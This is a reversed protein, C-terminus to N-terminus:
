WLRNYLRRLRSLIRVAPNRSCEILHIPLSAVPAEGVMSLYKSLGVPSMWSQRSIRLRASAFLYYEVQALLPDDLPADSMYLRELERFQRCHFVTFHKELTQWWRDIYYSDWDAMFYVPMDGGQDSVMRRIDAVFLGPFSRVAASILREAYNGFYRSMRVHLCVYNEGIESLVEQALSKVSESPKLGVEVDAIGRSKKYSHWPIVSRNMERGPTAKVVVRYGGYEDSVPVEGPLRLREKNRIKLTSFDSMRITRPRLTEIEGDEYTVRVISNELDIYNEWPFRASCAVSEPRPLTRGGSFYRLLNPNPVVLIRQSWVAERILDQLNSLNHNWGGGSGISDYALYRDAPKQM